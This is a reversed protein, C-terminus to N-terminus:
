LQGSDARITVDGDTLGTRVEIDEGMVMELMGELRRVIENFTVPRLNLIQKRSFALLGQMLGAARESSILINEIYKKYPNGEGLKDKLLNGYGMIAMLINNFEHAVGVALPGVAALKQSHLLQQALQKYDTIDQAMIVFGAPRKHEDLM